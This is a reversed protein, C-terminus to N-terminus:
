ETAGTMGLRRQYKAMYAAYDDWNQRLASLEACTYDIILDRYEVPILTTDSDSSMQAPLAVYFVLFSDVGFMSPMSYKPLFMLKDGWVYYFKPHEINNADQIYQRAATLKSWPDGLSDLPRIPLRLSDGKMKQVAMIRLFDSPLSLAEVTGSGIVTDLKLIAPFDNAVAMQAVNIRKNAVTATVKYTGTSPVNLQEFVQYRLSDLRPSIPDAAFVVSGAALALVLLTFRIKM